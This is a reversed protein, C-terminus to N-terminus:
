ESTTMTQPSLEIDQGELTKGQGDGLARKWNKVQSMAIIQKITTQVKVM